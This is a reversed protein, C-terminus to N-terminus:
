DVNIADLLNMRPPVLASAANYISHVARGLLVRLVKRGAFNLLM